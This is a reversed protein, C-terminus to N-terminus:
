LSVGPRSQSLLVFGLILVLLGPGLGCLVVGANPSIPRTAPVALDVIEPGLHGAIVSADTDTSVAPLDVMPGAAARAAAARRNEQYREAITNAILAAEEPQDSRVQISVLMTNRIPTVELRSRLIALTEPMPLHSERGARRGWKEQLGLQSIVGGLLAPSRFREFEIRGFYPHNPENYLKLRTEGLYQPRALAQHLALGILTSGVAVLLLACLTQRSFRM